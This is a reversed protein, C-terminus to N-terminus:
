STNSGIVAPQRSEISTLVESKIALVEPVTEIILEIGSPIAGIDGVFEINAHAQDAEKESLKGRAVGAAVIQGFRDCARQRAADFPECLTVEFNNIAFAHAIGLGMTGGGVVGVRV